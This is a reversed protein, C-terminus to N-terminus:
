IQIIKHRSLVVYSKFSSFLVCRESVCLRLARDLIVPFTRNRFNAAHSPLTYLLNINRPKAATRIWRHRQHHYQLGLQLYQSNVQTFYLSPATLHASHLYLYHRIYNYQRALVAFQSYKYMSSYYNWLPADPHNLTKMDHMPSIVELNLCSNREELLKFHTNHLGYSAM